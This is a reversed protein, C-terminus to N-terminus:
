WGGEARARGFLALLRLLDDIQALPLMNPGDSKATAPDPHTEMFIGDVGAGLAARTLPLIFEPAGGSADGQGGPKQISHTADFLVPLGAGRIVPFSRMDVVWDHYGFATGRETVMVQRNGAGRVKGAAHAIDEPALFQGKKINVPKGTAAAALLLDTQRCLFAPIQLLDAVQAVPVAQEPLHIDTVFPLGTEEKLRRMVALGEDLGPGRYGAASTRNAKDFSAKMIYPIGFHAAREAVTMVTRRQIEESELVCPGAVLVPVTGAGITITGVQVPQVESM